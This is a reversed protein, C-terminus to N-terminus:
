CFIYSQNTNKRIVESQRGSADNRPTYVVFCDLLIVIRLGVCKHRRHIKSKALIFRSSQKFNNYVVVLEAVSRAFVFIRPYLVCGAHCTRQRKRTQDLFVTALAKSKAFYFPNSFIYKHIAVSRECHRFIITMHLVTILTKEM